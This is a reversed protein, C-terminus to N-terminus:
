RLKRIIKKVKIEKLGYYRGDEKSIVEYDYYDGEDRSIRFAGSISDRTVIKKSV